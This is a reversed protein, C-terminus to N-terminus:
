TGPQDILLKATANCNKPVWDPEVDSPKWVRELNEIKTVTIRLRYQGDGYTGPGELLGEFTALIVGMGKPFKGFIHASDASLKGVNVWIKDGGAACCSPSDLRSLEFGYRYIARVRIRQGLLEKWDRILDCYRINKVVPDTKPGRACLGGSALLILLPLMVSKSKLINM